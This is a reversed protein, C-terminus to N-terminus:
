RYAAVYARGAEVSNDAKARADRARAFRERVGRTVHASVAAIVDNPAGAV